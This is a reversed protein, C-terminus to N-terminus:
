FNEINSGLGIFGLLKLPTDFSPRAKVFEVAIGADEGVNGSVWLAEGFVVLAALDASIVLTFLPVLM